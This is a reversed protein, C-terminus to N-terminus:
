LDNLSELYEVVISNHHSYRRALFLLTERSHWSDELLRCAPYCHQQHHKILYKVVELHGEIVACHLANVGGDTTANPDSNLEKLM